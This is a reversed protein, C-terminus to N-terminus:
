AVVTFPARKELYEILKASFPTIPAGVQYWTGHIRQAYAVNWADSEQNLLVFEQNQFVFVKAGPKLITKM